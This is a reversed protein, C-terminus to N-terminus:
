RPFRPYTLLLQPNVSTEFWYLLHQAVLLCSATSQTCPNLFLPPFRDEKEEMSLNDMSCLSAPGERRGSLICLLLQLSPVGYRVPLTFLVGVKTQQRGQKSWTERWARRNVGRLRDTKASGLLEMKVRSEARRRSWRHPCTNRRQKESATSERRKGMGQGRSGMLTKNEHTHSICMLVHTSVDTGTCASALVACETDEETSNQSVAKLCLRM